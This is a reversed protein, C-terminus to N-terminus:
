VKVVKLLDDILPNHPVRQAKQVKPYKDNRILVVKQNKPATEDFAKELEDEFCKECLIKSNYYFESSKPIARGCKECIKVEVEV